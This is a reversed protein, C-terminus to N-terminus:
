RFMLKVKELSFLPCIPLFGVPKGVRKSGELAEASNDLVRMVCRRGKGGRGRRRGLPYWISVGDWAAAKGSAFLINKQFFQGFIQM